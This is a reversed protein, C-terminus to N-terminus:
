EIIACFPTFSFLSDEEPEYIFEGTLRYSDVLRRGVNNHFLNKKRDNKYDHISLSSVGSQEVDNFSFITKFKSNDGIFGDIKASLSNRNYQSHERYGENSTINADVLFGINDNIKIWYIGVGKGVM